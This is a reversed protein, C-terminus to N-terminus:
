ISRMNETIWRVENVNFLDKFSGDEFIVRYYLKDKKTMEKIAIVTGDTSFKDVQYAAYKPGPNSGESISYWNFIIYDITM